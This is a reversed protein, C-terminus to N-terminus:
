HKEWDAYRKHMRLRELEPLGLGPVRKLEAYTM